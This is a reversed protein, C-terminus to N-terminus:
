PQYLLKAIVGRELAKQVSDADPDDSLTYALLGEEAYRTHVWLRRGGTYSRYRYSAYVSNQGSAAGGPPM